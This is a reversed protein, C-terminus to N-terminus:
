RRMQWIRREATDQNGNLYDSIVEVAGIFDRSGWIAMILPVSYKGVYIDELPIGAAWQELNKQLQCPCKKYLEIAKKKANVTGLSYERCIRAALDEVIDAM